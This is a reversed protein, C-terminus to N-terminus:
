NKDGSSAGSFPAGGVRHFIGAPEGRAVGLFLNTVQGETTM